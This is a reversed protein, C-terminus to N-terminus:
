CYLLSSGESLLRWVMIFSIIQLLHLAFTRIKRVEYDRGVKNLAVNITYTSSDHHPRLSPQEDPRYRVMFNMMSRFDSILRNDTEVLSLVTNTVISWDCAQFSVFQEDTGQLDISTVWLCM